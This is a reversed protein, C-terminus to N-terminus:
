KKAEGAISRKAEFRFFTIFTFIHCLFVLAGINQATFQKKIARQSKDCIPWKKRQRKGQAAKRSRQWQQTDREHQGAGEAKQGVEGTRHV